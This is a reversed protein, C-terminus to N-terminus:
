RSSASESPMKLVYGVLPIILVLVTTFCITMSVSSIYSDTHRAVGLLAHRLLDTQAPTFQVSGAAKEFADVDEFSRDTFVRAAVFISVSTITM